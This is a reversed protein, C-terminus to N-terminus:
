LGWDGMPIDPYILQVLGSFNCDEAWLEEGVLARNAKCKMIQIGWQQATPKGTIKNVGAPKYMHRIQINWLYEQDRFGQREQKGTKARKPEGNTEMVPQGKDDVVAEYQDKVKNTGIIIKGSDHCRATIARRKAYLDGFRTQPWVQTIKGFEALTQLEYFDSDGDIAVTLADPNALAKYLEERCKKFYEVYVDQASTTNLPINIAKFAFDSRRSKPPHPNDFIPDFGRDLCVVLGPGPCSLLFETKGSDPPGETGIMLPKLFRGSPLKMRSRAKPGEIFGDRLFSAPLAM